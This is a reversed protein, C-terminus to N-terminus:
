AREALMDRPDCIEGKVAGAAVSYPSALYVMGESSGM